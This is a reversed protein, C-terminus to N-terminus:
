IPFIDSLETSRYFISGLRGYTYNEGGLTITSGGVVPTSNPESSKFGLNFLTVVVEPSQSIDYGHKAWQASIEKIFIATYLYQYYHDNKDTLRNYLATDHDENDSYSILESIGDGPYFESEPSRAYREILDATEQKIGSIGLSFKSLSSLIKLPEFIKKFSEREATFYRIQEPVVVSAIMRSSVGTQKSVLLIKEADKTLGSKVVGWESTSNWECAHYRTPTCLLTQAGTDKDNTFFKNRDKISGRVKLIDFQMGVFVFSFLVGILAFFGVLGFTFKKFYEKLM